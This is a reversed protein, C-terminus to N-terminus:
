SKKLCKKLRTAGIKLDNGIVEVVPLAFISQRSTDFDSESLKGNKYNVYNRYANLICEQELRDFKSMEEYSSALLPLSKNELAEYEKFRAFITVGKMIRAQYINAEEDINLLLLTGARVRKPNKGVLVKGNQNLEHYTRSFDRLQEFGLITQLLFAGAIVIFITITSVSM